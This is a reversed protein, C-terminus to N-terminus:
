IFTGGTEVGMGASIRAFAHVDKEEDRSIVHVVCEIISMMYMVHVMNRFFEIHEM